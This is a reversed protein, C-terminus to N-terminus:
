APKKEITKTVGVTAAAPRKSVLAASPKKMAALNNLERLPVAQVAKKKQVSARKATTLADAARIPAPESVDQVPVTSASQAIPARPQSAEAAAEAARKLLMADPTDASSAVAPVSGM